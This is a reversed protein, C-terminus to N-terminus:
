REKELANLVSGVYYLNIPGGKVCRKFKVRQYTGDLQVEGIYLWGDRCIKYSGSNYAAIAKFEDGEYKELRSKLYKAAYRINTRPGFLQCNDYTRDQVSHENFDNECKDDKLGMDKATRYLVQCIGFAHNNLGADAHRYLHPRHGTEVWCIARLLSESVGIEVSIDKFAKDIYDQGVAQANVSFLFISILFLIRVMIEM